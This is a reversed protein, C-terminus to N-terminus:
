IQPVLSSQGCIFYFGRPRPCSRFGRRIQSRTQLGSVPCALRRGRKSYSESPQGPSAPRPLLPCGLLIGLAGSTLMRCTMGRILGRNVQPIVRRTIRRSFRRNIRCSIRWSFEWTFPLNMGCTMRSSLRCNVQPNLRRNLGYTMRRTVKLSM